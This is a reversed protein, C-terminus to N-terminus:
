LRRSFRRVHRGQDTLAHNRDRKGIALHVLDLLCRLDHGEIQTADEELPQGSLKAAFVETVAKHM